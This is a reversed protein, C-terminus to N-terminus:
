FGGLGESADEPGAITHNNNINNNVVEEECSYFKFLLKQLVKQKRRM